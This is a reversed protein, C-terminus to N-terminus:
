RNFVLKAVLKRRIQDGKKMNGQRKEIASANLHKGKIKEKCTSRLETVRPNRLDLQLM